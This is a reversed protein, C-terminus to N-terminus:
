SGTIMSYRGSARAVLTAGLAMGALAIVYYAWRHVGHELVRIQEWPIPLAIVSVFFLTVALWAHRANLRAVLWGIGVFCFLRLSAGLCWVILLGENRDLGAARLARYIDGSYAIFVANLEVWVVLAGWGVALALVLSRGSARVVDAGSVFIATLVQRWYWWTSKSQHLEMLDGILSEAHRGRLCRQLLWISFRPRATM